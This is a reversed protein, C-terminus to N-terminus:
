WWVMEHNIRCTEGYRDSWRYSHAQISFTLFANSYYERTELFLWIWRSLNIETGWDPALTRQFHRIEQSYVRINLIKCFQVPKWSVHFFHSVSRSRHNKRKFVDSHNSAKEFVWNYEPKILRQLGPCTWFLEWYLLWWLHPNLAEFM